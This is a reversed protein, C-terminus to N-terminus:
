GGDNPNKVRAGLRRKPVSRQVGGRRVADEGGASIQALGDESKWKGGGRAREMKKNKQTQELM